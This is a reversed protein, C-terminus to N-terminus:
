VSAQMNRDRQKGENCTESQGEHICGLRSGRTPNVWNWFCVHSSYSRKMNPSPKRNGSIHVVGDLVTVEVHLTNEHCSFEGSDRPIWSSRGGGTETECIFVTSSSIESKRAHFVEQIDTERFVLCTSRTQSTYM